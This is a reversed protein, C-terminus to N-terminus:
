AKGCKNYMTTITNAVFSTTDVGKKLTQAHIEKGTRLLCADACAKLAIALTYSDYAMNNRCLKAFYSIGEMNFGVHM